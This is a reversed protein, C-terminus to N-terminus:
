IVHHKMARMIDEEKIISYVKTDYRTEILKNEETRRDTIVVIAEIKMNINECIAELRKSLTNGTIIFDDIIIVKDNNKLTYGCLTKGRSDPVKREHCYNVVTGYKNYLAYATALSFAIGHYALGLITDFEIYNEKICDAFAEGIKAIQANTGFNESNLIFGEERKKGKFSLVNNTFMFKIFREKNTYVNLKFDMLENISVEFEDALVPLLLIDPYAIEKEWKSVAQASIGLKEALQEQTMGKNQRLRRINRGITM